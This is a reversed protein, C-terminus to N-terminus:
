GGTCYDQHGAASMCLQLANTTDKGAEHAYDYWERAENKTKGQWKDSAVRDADDHNTNYRESAAKWLMNAARSRMKHLSYVRKSYISPPWRTKNDMAVGSWRLVESARAPGKKGLFAAYSYAIDPDSQDIDKLHRKVLKEWSRKDTRWANQIMLISMNRKTTQSPETVMAAELCAINDDGLSGMMAPVELRILDSCDV